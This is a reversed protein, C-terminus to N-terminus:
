KICLKVGNRLATMQGLKPTAKRPSKCGERLLVHLLAELGHRVDESDSPRASEPMFRDTPDRRIRLSYVVGSARDLPEAV